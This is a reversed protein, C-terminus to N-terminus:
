LLLLQLMLHLVVCNGVIACGDVAAFVDVVVAAGSILLLMLLVLLMLLLVAVAGAM